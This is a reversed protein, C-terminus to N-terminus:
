IDLIVFASWGELNQVVQFRHFTVVKVDVIQVHREVDLKEGSATGTLEFEEDKEHIKIYFNALILKEADKYFIVEQLFNFLLLDM